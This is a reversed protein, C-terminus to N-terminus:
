ERRVDAMDIRFLIPEADRDALRPLSLYLRGAASVPQQFLMADGTQDGPYLSEYFVGGEPHVLGDAYEAGYVNGIDDVLHVAGRGRWTAYDVKRDDSANVVLLEVRLMNDRTYRPSRTEPDNIATVGLVVDTITVRLPGDSATEGLNLVVPPADDIPEGDAAPELRLDATKTVQDRDGASGAVIAPSATVAVVFALGPIATAALVFVPVRGGRPRVELRDRSVVAAVAVARDELM